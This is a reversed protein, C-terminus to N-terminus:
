ASCDLQEDWPRQGRGGRCMMSCQELVRSADGGHEVDPHPGGAVASADGTGFAETVGRGGGVDGPGEHGAGEVMGAADGVLDVDGDAGDVGGVDAVQRGQRDRDAVGGSGRLGMGLDGAQEGGAHEGGQEADDVEGAGQKDVGGPVGEAGDHPHAAEVPRPAVRADVLLM